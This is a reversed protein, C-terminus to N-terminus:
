MTRRSSAVFGIMTTNFKTDSTKGSVGLLYDHWVVFNGLRALTPGDRLERFSSAIIAGIVPWWIAYVALNAFLRIKTNKVTHLCAESDLRLM